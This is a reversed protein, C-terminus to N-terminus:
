SHPTRTSDHKGERESERRDERVRTNEKEEEERGGPGGGRESEREEM